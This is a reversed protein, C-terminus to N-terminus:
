RRKRSSDAKSYKIIAEHANGFKIQKNKVKQYINTMGIMRIIIPMYSINNKNFGIDILFAAFLGGINLRQVKANNKQKSFNQDLDIMYLVNNKKIYKIHSMFKLIKQVRPDGTKYKPHGFGHYPIKSTNICNLIDECIKEFCFHKEGFSNISSSIVQPYKSGCITSMLVIMSSPPEIEDEEFTFFSEAFFCLIQKEKKSITKDILNLTIIDIFDKNM